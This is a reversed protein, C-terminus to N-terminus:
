KGGKKVPAKTEPKIETYGKREYEAKQTVAINRTKTGNSVLM